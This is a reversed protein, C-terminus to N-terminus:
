GRAQYAQRIWAEIQQDVEEVSSLAVRHSTSGSGFSGAEQLRGTAATGPLRLGLDVRSRTSAQVLGFQHRRAFGVYTKRPTLEVDSGLGSAYITLREYIPLLDAKAGSYQAAM